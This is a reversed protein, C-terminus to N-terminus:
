LRSADQYDHLWGVPVAVTGYISTVRVDGVLLEHINLPFSDDTSQFSLM